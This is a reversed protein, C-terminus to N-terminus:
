KDSSAAGGKLYEKPLDIRDGRQLGIKEATGQYLEIVFQTPTVPGHPEEDLPRRQEIDVVHGTSDLFVIDLPILTNKMYFELGTAQPFVFLMGHDAPLSKRYMFGHETKADTDAIEMIFPKGKLTMNTTAFTMPNPDRPDSDIANPSSAPQTTPAPTVAPTTAPSNNGSCAIPLTTVAAGVVLAAALLIYPNNRKRQSTAEQM